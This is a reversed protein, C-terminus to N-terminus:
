RRRSRHKQGLALQLPSLLLIMDQGKIDGLSEVCGRM